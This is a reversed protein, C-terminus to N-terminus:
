HSHKDEYLNQWQIAKVMDAVPDPIQQGKIFIVGYTFWSFWSLCCQGDRFRVFGDPLTRETSYFGSPSQESLKRSGIHWITSLVHESISSRLMTSTSSQSTGADATLLTLHLFSWRWTYFWNSAVFMPFLLIILPDTKLAIWLAYLEVRWSPQRQTTVKTGDTRFVKNPDAM